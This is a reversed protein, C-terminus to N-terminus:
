DSKVPVDKAAPRIKPDKKMCATTADKIELWITAYQWEYGESDEPPVGSSVKHTIFQKLDEANEEHAEKLYPIQYTPNILCHFITGLSWIEARKLDEESMCYPREKSVLVEPAIFPLTGKFVNITHTRGVQSTQGINGWSQGFDTLKAVCPANQWAFQKMPDSDRISLFSANSLLVDSPKVDCHAVGKSHLYKVGNVIDNAIIVPFHEFDTYKCKEHLFEELNSVITEKGFIAFDFSIYELMLSHEELSIGVFQAINEHKLHYLFRAEKVIDKEDIDNLVKLM